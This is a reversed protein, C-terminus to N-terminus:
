DKIWTWRKKNRIEYIERRSVGYFNALAIASLTPNDRIVRIDSETLKTNQGRTSTGHAVMDASNGAQDTWRLHQPNVCPPNRCSHAVQSNTDPPPGHIRECVIRHTGVMKGDIKISGYGDSVRCYPWELCDEKDYELAQQIFAMPAGRTISTLPDGHVRWSMYHRNCLGRSIVRVPNDCGPIVCIAV